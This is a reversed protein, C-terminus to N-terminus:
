DHHRVGVFPASLQQTDGEAVRLSFVTDLCQGLCVAMAEVTAASNEAYVAVHDGAEYSIQLGAHRLAQSGKLQSTHPIHSRHWPTHPPPPLTNQGVDNLDWHLLGFEAPVTLYFM